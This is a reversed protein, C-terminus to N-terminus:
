ESGASPPPESGMGSETDPSPRLQRASTEIPPVSDIDKDGIEYDRLNRAAPLLRAEYSGVLENHSAVTRDLAKTLKKFLESVRAFRSYLDEGLRLVARANESVKEQRWGYAIAKALALLTTPTAIIVNRQYADDFLEPKASVAAAYFNDGPVFMVVFDPTNEFKSWYAKSGLTKAHNGMQKAHDKLLKEREKDDEQEVADLYASMPVKADIVLLRGGPMHLIADPRLAGEADQVHVQLDYDVHEQMGAMELIRTLQHEGWRGRTAPQHRLATVLGGTADRLAGTEEVMQRIQQDLRGQAESRDKEVEVLKSQYEKLREGIPKVLGDISDRSEKQQREFIEQARKLFSESTGELLEKALLRLENDIRGQLTELVAVKEAHAEREKALLMEANQRALREEGTRGAEQQLRDREGILERIRTRQMWYIAVAGLVAGVLAFVADVASSM